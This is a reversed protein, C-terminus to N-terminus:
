GRKYEVWAIARKDDHRKVIKYAEIEDLEIDNHTNCDFKLNIKDSHFRVMAFVKPDSV